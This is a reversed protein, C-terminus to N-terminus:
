RQSPFSSSPPISPLSFGPRTLLACCLGVSVQKVKLASVFILLVDLNSNFSELMEKDFEDALKDYKEWFKAKSGFLNPEEKANIYITNRLKNTGKAM